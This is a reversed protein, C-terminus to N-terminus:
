VSHNKAKKENYMIMYSQAMLDQLSLRKPSFLCMLFGIGYFGASLIMGLYRLTGWLFSLNKGDKLSVLKISVLRMGLTWGSFRWSLAFYLWQILAFCIPILISYGLLYNGSEDSFLGIFYWIWFPIMVMLTILSDILFALVRRICGATKM